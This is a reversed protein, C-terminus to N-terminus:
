IDMHRVVTQQASDHQHCRRCRHPAPRVLRAVSVLLCRVLRAVRPLVFLSKRADVALFLRCAVATHLRYDDAYKLSAATAWGALFYTLALFAIGVLILLIEEPRKFM